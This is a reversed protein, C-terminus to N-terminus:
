VGGFYWSWYDCSDPLEMGQRVLKPNRRVEPLIRVSYTGWLGRYHEWHEAIKTRTSARGSNWNESINYQSGGTCPFSLWLLIPLGAFFQLVHLIKQIGYESNFDDEETIRVVLCGESQPSRMSGLKSDPGCCLEIIIRRPRVKLDRFETDELLKLIFKLRERKDQKKQNTAKGKDHDDVVTDKTTRTTSQTRVGASVSDSQAQVDATEAQDDETQPPQKGSHGFGKEGRLTQDVTNVEQCAPIEAIKEVILQAVRDGTQVKYAQDSNNVLVVKIEGESTQTLSEPLSM